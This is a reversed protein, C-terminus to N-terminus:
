TLPMGQSSALPIRSQSSLYRQPDLATGPRIASRPVGKYPKREVVFHMIVEHKDRAGPVPELYVFHNGRDDNTERYAWPSEIAKNLVKQHDNEAPTPLWLRISSVKAEAWQGLDVRYELEYRAAQKWPDFDGAFASPAVIAAVSWVALRRLSVGYIVPARM